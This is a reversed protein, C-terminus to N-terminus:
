KGLPRAVIEVHRGTRELVAEAAQFGSKIAGEMTAPWGTQVWDGALFLNTGDVVCKPRLTHSRTGISYVSQPDTVVQM